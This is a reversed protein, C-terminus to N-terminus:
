VRTATVSDFAESLQARLGQPKSQTSAAASPTSGRTSVTRARASNVAAQKSEREAAASAERQATQVSEFIDAHRPHRLAAEYASPYDQALEAQLLGAMTDKVAEYHPYKEPAETIFRQYENNIEKQVLKQEVIREIDQPQYQPQQQQVPQQYQPQQGSLLQFLNQPNVRYQSLLNAFTQTREQESGLSLREHAAGLARIWQTPEVGHRQLNPLFPAIAENLQRANEAETKYTSVGGQYEKERQLIYAQVEPALGSWHTDYDKKWSQPRPIPAPAAAAQASPPAATVAATPSAPAAAPKAADKAANEKAFRGAEDRARQDKVDQPIEIAPADAAPTSGSELADFTDAITDRLTTQPEVNEM